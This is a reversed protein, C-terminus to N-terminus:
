LVIAKKLIILVMTGAETQCLMRLIFFPLSEDARLAAQQNTVAGAHKCCV